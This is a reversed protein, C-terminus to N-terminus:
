EGLQRYYYNYEHLGAAEFINSVWGAKETTAGCDCSWDWYSDSTMTSWQGCKECKVLFRDCKVMEPGHPWVIYGNSDIGLVRPFAEDYGSLESLVTEALLVKSRHAEDWDGTVEIFVGTEPLYFDPTYKRKPFRRDRIAKKEYEWKIGLEDLAEAVKSELNSRFMTGNYLTEKAQMRQPWDKYAM